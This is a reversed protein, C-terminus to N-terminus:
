ASHGMALCFTLSKRRCRSRWHPTRRTNAYGPSPDVSDHRRETPELLTLEREDLHPVFLHGREHGARVGLERALDAHAERRATGAGDVEQVTEVVRLHIVLGDDRDDPLGRAGRHTAVVLLLDIELVEHLVDRVLVHLRRHIGRLHPVEDVAREPVRQRRPRRGHDDKRV